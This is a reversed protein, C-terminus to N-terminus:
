HRLGTRFDTYRLAVKLTDLMKQNSIKRSEGLYSLMRPSLQQEAEQMSIEPLPPLGAVAAAEQLYESIKGPSGDTVNFVEGVVSQQMAAIAVSALDQAHIRNSYGSQEACVVPAAQQLRERPIRSHAYIGPVRLVNLDVAQAQSWSMWQQESSLRRKGRATKPRTPSKETVWAGGSDGYVGTTSILVVKCPKLDQQLMAEILARSRLDEIGSKQPPVLYYLESNKVRSPLVVSQDLDTRLIPVGLEECSAVGQESKVLALIRSAQCGSRILQRAIRRGVDGCGFIVAQPDDM